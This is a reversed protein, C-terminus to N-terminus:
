LDGSAHPRLPGLVLSKGHEVEREYSALTVAILPKGEIGGGTGEAVRVAGSRKSSDADTSVGTARMAGLWGM